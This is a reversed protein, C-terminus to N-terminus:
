HDTTNKAQIPYNFKDRLPTVLTGASPLSNSVKTYEHVSSISKASDAKMTEEHELADNEFTSAWPKYSNLQNKMQALLALDSVFSTVWGSLRQKQEGDTEVLRELEDMVNPLGYLFLQQDDWLTRFLRIREYKLSANQKNRAQIMATGPEQPERVFRSRLPPSPPVGVKLSNILGKHIQELLYNFTLLAQQLEGPLKRRTSISKSYKRQLRELDVIKKRIADFISSQIMYADFIAAAAVRDWFLYEKLVPHPRGNTDLLAEQRHESYDGVVSSFYGPDERLAYIHDTTALSSAAALSCLHRFDLLAPLRYPTDPQWRPWHPILLKTRYCPLLSLGCLSAPKPLPISPCIRSSPRVASFSSSLFKKRYRCCM